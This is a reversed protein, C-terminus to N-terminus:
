GGSRPGYPDVESILDRSTVNPPASSTKVAVSIDYIDAEKGDMLEHEFMVKTDEVNALIEDHKGHLHPPTKPVRVVDRLGHSTAFIADVEELSRYAMRPFFLYICISIFANLVVFIFYTRYGISSLSVPTIEVILFNSGWTTAVMLGSAKACIRLPVAEAPYLWVMALWGIAFFVQAVYLFGAGAAGPGKKGPFATVGALVAMGIMQGFSGVLM